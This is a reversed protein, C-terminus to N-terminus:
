GVRASRAALPNWPAGVERPTALELVALELLVEDPLEAGKLDVDLRALRDHCWALEGPHFAQALQKAQRFQHDSRLGADKAAAGGRVQLLQRFRYTLAGVIALPADGADLAGRLAVLAGGADRAAVADAVAFGSVRGHGTVVADVHEATLTAVGPQAACVSGVQSAIVAPDIGAHMRVAAIATADAKRGLRRFEEGVLRDWGRDDWDAPRKVDVRQGHEKALKALKQVKGLGRAVLVLVAEDSPSAAYAELEEKLGGSVSEVGRVVVCTRGGFLSATRLEPLHELESADFRDVTLEADADTLAALQRDLERQLLLDDDGALLLLPTM